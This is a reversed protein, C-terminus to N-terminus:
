LWGANAAESLTSVPGCSGHPHQKRSASRLDRTRESARLLRPVDALYTLCTALRQGGGEECFARGESTYKDGAGRAGARESAHAGTARPPSRWAACSTHAPPLRCRHLRARTRHRTRSHPAARSLAIGRTLSRRKQADRPPTSENAGADFHECYRQSSTYRSIQPSRRGRLSPPAASPTRPHHHAPSPTARRTANPPARGVAHALHTPSTRPRPAHALARRAARASCRPRPEGAHAGYAGAAPRHAGTAARHAAHCRCARSRADGWVLLAVARGAAFGCDAVM